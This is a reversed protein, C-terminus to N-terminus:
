LNVCGSLVIGKIINVANDVDPVEFAVHGYGPENVAKYDAKREPSYQFIELTPGDDGIGPLRLHIGRIHAHKLGTGKELWKGSLNREPYVPTCGFAAQYFDALKKWNRAVLNTHVYKADKIM